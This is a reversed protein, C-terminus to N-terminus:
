RIVMFQSLYIEDIRGLSLVANMSDRLAAKIIAENAPALDETTKGSLYGTIITRLEQRKLALEERFARDSADYPFTLEIVVVAPNADATRTRIRGLADYVGAGSVPTPVAERALKRQRSGTVTGWITGSVLVLVLLAAIAALVKETGTM